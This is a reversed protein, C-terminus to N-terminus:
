APAREKLTPYDTYGESGGGYYSSKDPSNMPEGSSLREVFDPTTLVYQGYSELDAVGSAIDSGVKELARGPRNVILAQGWAKRIDALLDENGIHMLHVYALGLDNLERMLYRYLDPGEPGEELGGLTTGPSLRIGTREAGIEESVARAVEIAFRARNEIGGGYADTRVNANPAFFQQLLYGNAGHIEVGDAGADIACRAAKRFDDVTRTIDEATLARPEPVPKMGDLTFMQDGPVIASPAVAQANGPTNDPHSTRGVHMLQIFIHSGKDHVAQTVKQWEQVHADTYIGPTFIYGQGEDSPQTGESIILGMGARQAYYTAALPGPKGDPQARSRTMPAMALRNKLDLNGLRIPTKIDTM